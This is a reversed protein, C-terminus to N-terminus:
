PFPIPNLDQRELYSCGYRKRDNLTFNLINMHPYGQPSFVKVIKTRFGGKIVPIHTCYVKINLENEIKQIIEHLKKHPMGSEIGTKMYPSNLLYSYKNFLDDPSLENFNAMYPNIIYDTTTVDTKIYKKTRYKNYSRGFSEIMEELTSNIADYFDVGSSLGVTKYFKGKGIGLIVYISKNLSINFLAIDDVFNMLINVNDHAKQNSYKINELNIREGTSKNLWSYIFSQREFFEFFAHSIADRSNLHSSVGCTDNFKKENFLISNSDVDIYSGTVMRFAKVSNNKKSLLNIRENFEGIAAKNVNDISLGASHGSINQSVLDNIFVDKIQNKFISTNIEFYIDNVHTTSKLIM